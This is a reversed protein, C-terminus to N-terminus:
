APEGGARERERLERRLAKGTLTKPIEAVFVVRRPAKYVSLLARCHEILEEGSAQEGERLAVYAVTTEGRYDDPAGVVAAEAVAPHKYLVDEVERPWVKYGSVNIM